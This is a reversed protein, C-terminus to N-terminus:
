KTRISKRFAKLKTVCLQTRANKSRMHRGASIERKNSRRKIAWMMGAMCLVGQLLLGMKGEKPTLCPQGREGEMNAM